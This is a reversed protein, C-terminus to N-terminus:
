TLASKGCCQKYKKGSGCPCPKNREPKNPNVIPPNTKETVYDVRKHSPMRFTFCTKGVNTVTFDGQSIVDMGILIDAGTFNAELVEIGPLLLNNPLALNILYVNCTSTGGAHAMETLSIPKLDLEKVIKSTIVSGTAGTDWLATYDTLVLTSDPKTAKSVKCPSTLVNVRGDYDVTFSLHQNAGLKKM